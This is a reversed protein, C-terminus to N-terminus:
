QKVRLTALAIGAAKLARGCLDARDTATARRDRIPVYLLGTDSTDVVVFCSRPDIPKYTVVAPYGGVSSITNDAPNTHQLWQAATYDATADVGYIGWAAVSFGCLSGGVVGDPGGVTPPQDIELAAREAEPLLTCSDVGATSLAAPRPPLSLAASSSTAAASPPSAQAQGPQSSSCGTAAVAVVGVVALVWSM